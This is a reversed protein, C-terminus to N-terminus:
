NSGRPPDGAGRERPQLVRQLEDETIWLKRGIKAARIHGRAIKMRLAPKSIGLLAAARDITHARPQPMTATSV